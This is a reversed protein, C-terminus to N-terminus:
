DSLKRVLLSNGCGLDLVKSNEPYQNIRNVIWRFREDKNMHMMRKKETHKYIASYEEEDNKIM